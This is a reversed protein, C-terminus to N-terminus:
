LQVASYWEFNGDTFWEGIGNSMDNNRPYIARFDDDIFNYRYPFLIDFM